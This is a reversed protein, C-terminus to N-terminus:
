NKSSKSKLLLYNFIFMSIVPVYIVIIFVLWSVTVEPVPEAKILLQNGIPGESFIVQTTANWGLHIAIPILITSTKYFAYALLFGMTGTIFFVFIMQVINGIANMSFWHYIGFCIASIIIAKGAGLKKILIYLLVGRFILEEFLVSKINWWIGSFILSASAHPNLIWEEKGFYFRLLFGTACCFATILLFLIFNMLRYRTPFFGLVSLDKKTFLRIIIWSIALQVILGLM